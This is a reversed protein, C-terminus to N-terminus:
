GDGEGRLEKARSFELGPNYPEEGKFITQM